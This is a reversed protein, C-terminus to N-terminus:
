VGIDLFVTVSGLELRNRRRVAVVLHFHAALDVAEGIIAVNEQHVIPAVEELLRRATAKNQDTSM